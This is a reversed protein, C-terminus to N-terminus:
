KDLFKGARMLEGMAHGIASHAADGNRSPGAGPRDERLVKMQAPSLIGQAQAEATKWDIRVFEAPGGSAYLPTTAALVNVLADAQERNIPVGELAAAGAIKGVHDRIEISRAYDKLRAYGPDGLVERIGAEVEAKGRDREALMAPDNFSLGQLRHIESLDYTNMRSRVLVDCLREIQTPTLGEKWFFPGYRQALFAREMAFQIVQLKPDKLQDVLPIEAPSEPVPAAKEPGEAETAAVPATEPKKPEALETEGRQLRAMLETRRKALAYRDAETVRSARASRWAIVALVATAVLAIVIFRRQNM